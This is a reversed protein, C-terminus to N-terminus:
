AIEKEKNARALLASKKLTKLAYLTNNNDDKKKVLM